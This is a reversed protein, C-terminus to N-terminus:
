FFGEWICVREPAFDPGWGWLFAPANFPPQSPAEFFGIESNKLCFFIVPMLSVRNYRILNAEVFGDGEDDFDFGVVANATYPDHDIAFRSATLDFPLSEQGLVPVFVDIM